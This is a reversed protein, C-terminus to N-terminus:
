IERLILRWREVQSAAAFVLEAPARISRQDITKM